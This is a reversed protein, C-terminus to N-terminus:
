HKSANHFLNLVFLRIMAALTRRAKWGDSGSRKDACTKYHVTKICALTSYIDPERLGLRYFKNGGRM